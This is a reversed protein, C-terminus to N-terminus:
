YLRPRITPYYHTAPAITTVRHDLPRLFLLHSADIFSLLAPSFSFSTASLQSHELTFCTLEKAKQAPYKRNYLLGM